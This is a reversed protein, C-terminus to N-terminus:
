FPIFILISNVYYLVSYITNFSKHIIKYKDKHLLSLATEYDCEEDDHNSIKRLTKLMFNVNPDFFIMRGGPRLVRFLEAAVKDYNAEGLFHHLADRLVLTDFHGDEFPLDEANVKLYNIDKNIKKAVDISIDDLDIAVCEKGLVQTIYNTTTGYGAGLDLVKDGFVHSAIIEIHKQDVKGFFKGLRKEPNEIKM